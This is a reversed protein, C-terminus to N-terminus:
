KQVILLTMKVNQIIKNQNGSFSIEVDATVTRGMWLVFEINESGSSLTKAESSTQLSSVSLGVKASRM